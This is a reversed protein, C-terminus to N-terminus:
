AFRNQRGLRLWGQREGPAQPLVGAGAPPAVEARRSEPRRGAGPPEGAAGWWHPCTFICERSDSPGAQLILVALTIFSM